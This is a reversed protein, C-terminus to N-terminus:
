SMNKEEKNLLFVPTVKRLVEPANMPLKDNGVPRYIIWSDRSTEGAMLRGPNGRGVFSFFKEPDTLSHVRFAVFKRPSNRNYCNLRRGLCPPLTAVYNKARPGM